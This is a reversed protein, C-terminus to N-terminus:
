VAPDGGDIAPALVVDLHVHNHLTNAVPAWLAAHRILAELHERSADADLQVSVRIAGFGMPRNRIDDTGVATNADAEVDLELRRIPIRRAVATAQIGQALCSGFAALLAESASSAIKEAALGDPEDQLMPQPPLDRIYNLQLLRGKAVTRCRLTRRATPDAKGRSPSAYFGDKSALNRGDGPKPRKTM